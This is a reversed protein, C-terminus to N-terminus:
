PPHLFRATLLDFNARGYMQRKLLKLRNVQGETQGNSWESSLATQIAEQDKKMGLALNVFEPINSALCAQLWNPFQHAKRKHLMLQFNRVLQWGQELVAHNLLGQRLVVEEEDLKEVPLLFLWVLRRAVPLGPETSSPRIANLELQGHLDEQLFKRPTNPAPTSRREYAWRSVQRYTGPYGKQQIERWLQSANQCGEHWRQSLYDQYPDLISTIHKRVIKQPFEPMALYKYITTPSKGLKQAITRIPLAQHHLRKIKAHLAKRKQILVQRTTETAQSRPRHRLVHIETPKASFTAPLLANLEPRLRDLVRQLAERLNVLLHWRDAVQIAQPAGESIGRAYEMSRDRAVIKVEPHSRLWQALTEATRDPLLDIVQHRELDVLITGYVRGRRKAWDDVGVVKSDLSPPPPTSRIMRLLTDGSIPMQLKSALRSGAQGGLAFAITTQAKHLRVTRRAHKELLDPFVEAFTARSCAQNQCRFRKV